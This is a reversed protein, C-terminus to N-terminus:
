RTELMEVIRRGYSDDGALDLPLDHRPPGDMAACLAARLGPTDRAEVVKTGSDLIALAPLDGVASAVVPISLLRAELVAVPLGESTSPFCAVSWTSMEQWKEAGSLPGLRSVHSMRMAANLAAVDTGAALPDPIEARPGVLRLEVDPGIAAVLAGIGKGPAILGLYGIRPQEPRPRIAVVTELDSRLDRALCGLLSTNPVYHCTRGAFRHESVCSLVTTALKGVVRYGVARALRLYRARALEARFEGHLHVVLRNSPKTARILACCVIDRALGFGGQSLALYYVAGRFRLSLCLLKALGVTASRLGALEVRGRAEVSSVAM